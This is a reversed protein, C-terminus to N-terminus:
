NENMNRIEVQMKWIAKLLPGRQEFGSEGLDSVGLYIRTRCRRLLGTVLHALTLQNAALDDADSWIREREWSRSLVYPQTLPQFVREWWGGSGADLWFQITAPQNMMLFTYAPALLVAESQGAQWAEIYQASIVGDQLMGIYEKGLELNNFSIENGGIEGHSYAPEMVQRFNQVSKILSGATRAADNNRHFGYGKQSLVEGFLRRLFHDLPSPDPQKVYANIWERLTEYQMGFIFTIREKMETQIANFSSLSNDRLRYVIETLLQARVLDMGEFAFMFAHVMDFKTPRINWGPHALEALTLLCASAPEDRLSRSPRHSRWPIQMEDLRNSISFRLADPLYPALVVIESPSVGEKTILNQIEGTVWELMQPFFRTPAETSPFILPNLSSAAIHSSRDALIKSAFAGELEQIESSAVFSKTLEAKVPCANALRKASEPDAGLFRRYGGETDFIILASDNEPLWELLLDHAVPVDEEINDYIIHHYQRGLYNRCEPLHWLINWFIEMQLSFDLLTHELCYQRFRSASEQADEYVRRQGPDGLWAACLREGIETFPFGVTAAKNLNDLVQSYLRNRDITVSSFFGEDLLPRVIRAMYYQATELTLFVPPDNPHAFGAREAALPWFLDVMRRALGGVTALAVQGGPRINPERLGREYPAQLTRQPTLVLISDAPVGSELLAQLREVGVTTKGCGAPGSLFTKTDLPSNIINFQAQDLKV